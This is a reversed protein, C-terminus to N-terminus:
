TSEIRDFVADEFEEDDGRKRAPKKSREAPGYRYEQMFLYAWAVFGLAAFV